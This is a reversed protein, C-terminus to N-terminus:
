FVGIKSSFPGSLDFPISIMRVTRLKSGHRGQPTCMYRPAPLVSSTRWEGMNPTGRDQDQRRLTPERGGHKVRVAPLGRVHIRSDIRIEGLADLPHLRQDLRDLLRGVGGSSRIRLFQDLRNEVKVALAQRVKEVQEGLRTRGAALDKVRHSAIFQNRAQELQVPEMGEIQFRSNSLSEILHRGREVRVLAINREQTDHVAHDPESHLSAAVAARRRRHGQLLGDFLRDGGRCGVCSRDFNFADYRGGGRRRRAENRDILYQHTVPM